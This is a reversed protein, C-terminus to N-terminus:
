MHYLDGLTNHLVYPSHTVEGEKGIAVICKEDGLDFGLVFNSSEENPLKFPNSESIAPTAPVANQDDASSKEPTDKPVDEMVVDQTQQDVTTETNQTDM